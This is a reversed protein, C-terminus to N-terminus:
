LGQKEDLYADTNRDDNKLVENCQNMAEEPNTSILLDALELRPEALKKDKSISKRLNKKGLFMM